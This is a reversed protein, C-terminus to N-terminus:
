RLATFDNESDDGHQGASDGMICNVVLLGQLRLTFRLRPAKCLHCSNDQMLDLAGQDQGQDQDQDQGRVKPHVLLLEIGM